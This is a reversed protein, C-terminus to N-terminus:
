EVTRSLNNFANMTVSSCMCINEAGHGALHHEDTREYSNRFDISANLENCHQILCRM